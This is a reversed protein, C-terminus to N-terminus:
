GDLRPLVEREWYSRVGIRCRDVGDLETWRKSRQKSAEVDFGGYDDAVFLWKHHYIHPDALQERQTVAGDARVTIIAGVTPENSTDFDDVEVFSVVGSRGDYKVVDYEFERPLHDKAEDVVDGLVREYRRHVYVKGAIEKGVGYKRSREPLNGVPLVEYAHRIPSPNAIM